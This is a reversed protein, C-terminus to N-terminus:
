RFNVTEVSVPLSRGECVIVFKTEKFHFQEASEIVFATEYAFPQRSLVWERTDWTFIM